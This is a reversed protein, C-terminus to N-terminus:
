QNGAVVEQNNEIPAPPPPAAEQAEGDKKEPQVAIAQLEIEPQQVAEKKDDDKPSGGSAKESEAKEKEREREEKQETTLEPHEKLYAVHPIFTEECYQDMLDKDCGIDNLKLGLDKEVVRYEDQSDDYKTCLFQNFFENMKLEFDYNLEFTSNVYLRKPQGEFTYEVDNILQAPLLKPYSLHMFLIKPDRFGEDGPKFNHEHNYYDDIVDFQALANFDFEEHKWAGIFKFFKSVQYYPEKLVHAASIFTEKDGQGAGGQTFIPYYYDPGNFNYYLAMILTKSHTLKNVMIMGTETTPDPLAGELDHYNFETVDPPLEASPGRVRNRGIPIDAIDYYSPASTRYWCDPWFVLGNDMFAKSKFLLDPNTVPYNDSDLFLINQFRSVLLAFTKYQFGSIVLRSILEPGFEEWLLTCQIGTGFKPLINNCFNADYEAESGIFIEIPLQSGLSKINQISILALLNYKGGGVLVIGDSGVKMKDAHGFPINENQITRKLKDHQEKLDYFSQDNIELLSDLYERTFTTDKIWAKVHKATERYNRLPPTSITSEYLINIIREYPGYLSHAPEVEIIKDVDRVQANPDANANANSKAESASKGSSEQQQQEVVPKKEEKIEKDAQQAKDNAAAPAQAEKQQQQSAGEQAVGGQQSQDAPAEAPAAAKAQDGKAPEQQQQESSQKTDAQAPEKASGAQEGIAPVTDASSDKATDKQPVQVDQAQQAQQAPEAQEAPKAVPVDKAPEAPPAQQAPQEANINSPKEEKQQQAEPQQAVQADKSEPNANAEEPSVVTVSGADEDNDGSQPPAIPPIGAAVLDQADQEEGTEPKVIKGKDFVFIPNAESADSGSGSGSSSGSSSDLQANNANGANNAAVAPAEAANAEAKAPSSSGANTNENANTESNEKNAEKQVAKEPVAVVPVQSAQAQAQHPAQQRTPEQENVPGKNLAAYEDYENNKPSADDIYKNIRDMVADHSSKQSSDLKKSDSLSSSSAGLYRNIREMINQHNIYSNSLSSSTDSSPSILEEKILTDEYKIDVGDTDKSFNPDIAKMVKYEIENNAANQKLVDIKNNLNIKKLSGSIETQSDSNKEDRTVTNSSQQGLSLFPIFSDISVIFISFYVLLGTIILCKQIKKSSYGSRFLANKAFSTTAVM